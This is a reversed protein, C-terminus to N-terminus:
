SLCHAEVSDDVIGFSDFEVIADTKWMSGVDAEWGVGDGFIGAYDLVCVFEVTESVEKKTLVRVFRHFVLMCHHVLVM